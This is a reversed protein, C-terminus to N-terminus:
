LPVLENGRVEYEGQPKGFAYKRFMTGPLWNMLNQSFYQSRFFGYCTTLGEPDRIMKYWIGNGMKGHVRQPM